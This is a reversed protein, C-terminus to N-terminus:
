PSSPADASSPGSITTPRPKWAMFRTRPEEGVTLRSGEGITRVRLALITGRWVEMPTRPYHGAELLKRCLQCVIAGGTRTEVVELGEARIRARRSFGTGPTYLEDLEARITKM